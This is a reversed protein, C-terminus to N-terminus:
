DKEKFISEFSEKGADVQIKKLKGKELAEIDADSAV